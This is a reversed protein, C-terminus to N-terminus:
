EIAQKRPDVHNPVRKDNARLANPVRRMYGILLMMMLIYFSYPYIASYLHLDVIAITIVVIHSPFPYPSTSAITSSTPSSAKDEVLGHLLLSPAM